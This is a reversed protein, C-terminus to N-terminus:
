EVLSNCFVVFVITGSFFVSIFIGKSSPHSLSFEFTLWNLLAAITLWAIASFISRILGYLNEPLLLEKVAKDKFDKPTGKPSFIELIIKEMGLTFFSIISNNSRNPNDSLEKLLEVILSNFLNSSPECKM